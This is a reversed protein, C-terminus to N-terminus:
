LLQDTGIPGTASSKAEHHAHARPFGEIRDDGTLCLDADPGTLPSWAGAQRRLAVQAALELDRSGCQALGEGLQFFPAQDRSVLTPACEHGPGPDL